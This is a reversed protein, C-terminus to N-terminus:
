KHQQHYALNQEDFQEALLAIKKQLHSFFIVWRQQLFIVPHPRVSM